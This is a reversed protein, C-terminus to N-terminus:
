EPVQGYTMTMNDLLRVGEIQAAVLVVIEKTTHISPESLNSADRAELYELDVSNINALYDNGLKILESINKKPGSNKMVQLCKSLHVATAKGEQTLRENRSSMALGSPERLIPCSVIEVPLHYNKVLVEVVMCQQYDKLGFYARHPKTLEFFRKIVSAMGNFHGPRKTGELIESIDGLQYTELDAEPYVQEVSPTFVINCGGRELLGLDHDLNRPYKEFDSPDNFQSPNVFVSCITIDNERNSAEILSLHGAHLAGMTPVFGIQLGKSRLNYVCELMKNSSTISQM